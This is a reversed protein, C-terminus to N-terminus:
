DEEELVGTMLAKEWRRLTKKKVKSSKRTLDLARWDMLRVEEFSRDRNYQENFAIEWEYWSSVECNVITLRGFYPLLSNMVEVPRCTIRIGELYLNRVCAPGTSTVIVPTYIHPLTSDNKLFSLLSPRSPSASAPPINVARIRWHHLHDYKPVNEDQRVVQCASYDAVDVFRHNSCNPPISNIIIERTGSFLSPEIMYQAENLNRTLSRAFQMHPPLNTIYLVSNGDEIRVRLKTGIRLWRLGLTKSLAEHVVPFPTLIFPRGTPLSPAENPQAPSGGLEEVDETKKLEEARTKFKNGAKVTIGIKLESIMGLFSDMEDSEAGLAETEMEGEGEYEVIHYKANEGEGVKVVELDVQLAWFQYLGFDFRRLSRKEKISERFQDDFGVGLKNRPFSIRILNSPVRLLVYFKMCVRALLSFTEEPLYELIQLILEGPLRTFHDLGDTARSLKPRRLIVPFSQLSLRSPKKGTPPM